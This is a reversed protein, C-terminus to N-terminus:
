IICDPSYPLKSLFSHFFRSSFVSYYIRLFSFLGSDEQPFRTESIADSNMVRVLAQVLGPSREERDV